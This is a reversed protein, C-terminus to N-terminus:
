QEEGTKMNKSTKQFHNPIKAVYPHLDLEVFDGENFDPEQDLVVRVFDNTPKRGPTVLNKAQRL